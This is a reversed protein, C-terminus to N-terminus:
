PGATVSHWHLVRLVHSFFCWHLTCLVRLLCLPWPVYHMTLVLQRPTATTLVSTLIDAACDFSKWMILACSNYWSVCVCCLPHAHHCPTHKQMPQWICDSGHPTTLSCMALVVLCHAAFVWLHTDTDLLAQGWTACKMVVHALDWWCGHDGITLAVHHHHDGFPLTVCVYIMMWYYCDDFMGCSALMNDKNIDIQLAESTVPQVNSVTYMLIHCFVYSILTNGQSSKAQEVSTLSNVKSPICVTTIAQWM